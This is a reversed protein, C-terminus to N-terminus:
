EVNHKKGDSAIATVRAIFSGIATYQHNVQATDIRKPNGDGFDWEYTVIEGEAYSSGSADFKVTLPVVGSTPTAKLDAQVGQALVEVVIETAAENNAADKLMFRVTYTGAKEFTYVTKEQAKDNTGDNTFDWNYEVIDDNPDTSASGDFTVTLPAPGRVVNDELAPTTKVIPVPAADPANVTVTIETEDRGDNEDTIVLSVVYQGPETFTHSVTRNSGEGGDSFNWRYREIRGVPSSSSEGSFIYSTGVALTTGEIDKITINATPTEPETVVIEKEGISAEGTSDIVRLKILYSGIKTFTNTVQASTGDDFSGDEDLDWAYATIEGNVSTSSSGDFIVELPAPGQAPKADIVVSARVNQITVDKTFTVDETEGTAREKVAVTLTVTYNGLDKYTYTQPNGFLIDDTGFDWKYSLIEYQATNIPAYQADFNITIPATLQVTRVPNTTIGQRPAGSTRKSSLFVYTSVWIMILMVLVSFASFTLIAGKKKADKDGKKAAMIKFVGIVTVVFAVFTLVMFTLNVITILINVIEGQSVGFSAFLPNNESGAALFAFIVGIFLLISCGFASLCGILTKKRKAAEKAPDIPKKAPVAPAAAPTQQPPVAQPQAPQQPQQPNQPADPM